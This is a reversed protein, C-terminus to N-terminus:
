PLDRRLSKTIRQYLNRWGLVGGIVYYPAYLLLYRGRCEFITLFLSLGLLTVYLVCEGLGPKQHLWGLALGALILLWLTQAIGLFAPSGQGSGIGYFKQLAPLKGYITEFFGGERAWTFTGDDYNNLTKRIALEGFGGPGMEKVRAAAVSWNERSREKATPIGESFIVDEAIWIGESRRNLGLMAFHAMGLAKEPDVTLGAAASVGTKLGLALVAALAAAGARLALGKWRLRLPKQGYLYLVAHVLVVAVLFLISTPKIWTGVLCVGVVWFWKLPRDRMCAYICLALAPCLMGYTDSYPVLVWPSLGVFGGGLVLCAYGVWVSHVLHKAAVASLCVSVAVCICSGLVTIPYTKGTIGVISACRALLGQLGTLFLNNPYADYYTIESVPLERAIEDVSPAVYLLDWGAVFWGGYCIVIQAMLLLLGGAVVVRRFTTEQEWFGRLKGKRLWLAACGMLLAVGVAALLFLGNPAGRERKMSFDLWPSVFLLALLVFTFYGLAIGRGLRPITEAVRKGLGSSGPQKM